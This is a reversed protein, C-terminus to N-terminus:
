QGLAATDVDHLARQGGAKLIGIETKNDHGLSLNKGPPLFRLDLLGVTILHLRVGVQCRTIQDHM